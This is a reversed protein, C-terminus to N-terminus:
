VNKLDIKEYHRGGCLEKRLKLEYTGFKDCYHFSGNYFTELLEWHRCGSCMSKAM